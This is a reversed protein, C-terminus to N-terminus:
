SDQSGDRVAPLRRDRNGWVVLMGALIVIVAGALVGIQPVEAFLLWGIAIAWIMQTYDLPAITTADAYRYSETLFLQSVGGLLGALVLMAAQWGTPTVWGFPLSLLGAASSLLSFYVVITSTPESDVLKRVLIVAVAMLFASALAAAAGIAEAHGMSHAGFSLKPWLIILVGVFGLLVALIREARAPEGLWVMALVTLILPAAFNLAIAEPLQLYAIAVFWATMAAVGFAGRMLHALPRTTRLAGTLEGRMALLAFVPVLAFASRFFIQQGVPIADAVAKICAAMLTFGLTSAIKLVIGRLPHMM